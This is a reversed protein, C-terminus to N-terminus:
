QGGGVAHMEKRKKKKTLSSTSSLAEMQVVNGARKAKTQNESLLELKERPQGQVV